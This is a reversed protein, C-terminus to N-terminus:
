FVVNLVCIQVVVIMMMVTYISDNWSPVFECKPLSRALAKGRPQAPTVVWLCCNPPPVFIGKTLPKGYGGGGKGRRTTTPATGTVMNTVLAIALRSNM